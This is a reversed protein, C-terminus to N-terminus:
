DLTNIVDIYECDSVRVACDPKPLNVRRFTNQTFDFRTFQDSPFPTAAPNTLDFKVSVGAALTVLPAILLSLAAIRRAYSGIM